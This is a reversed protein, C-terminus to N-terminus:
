PRFDEGKRVCYITKWKIGAMTMLDIMEEGMNDKKKQVDIFVVLTKLHFRVESDLSRMFGKPIHFNISSLSFLNYFINLHM